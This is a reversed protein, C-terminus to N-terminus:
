LSGISLTQLVRRDRKVSRLAAEDFLRDLVIAFVPLTFDPCQVDPGIMHM